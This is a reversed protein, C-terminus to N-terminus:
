FSVNRMLVANELVLRQFRDGSNAAIVRNRTGLNYTRATEGIASASEAGLSRVLVFLRATSINNPDIDVWIDEIGEALDERNSLPIAGSPTARNLIRRVLVPVGNNTRIYYARFDYEWFRGEPVDGAVSNTPPNLTNGPFVVSVLHNSLIYVPARENIDTPLDDRPPTPRASKIVIVGTGPMADTICGIANGNADAVATVLSNRWDFAAATGTCNTGDDLDNRVVMPQSGATGRFGNHKIENNLITIAFRGNDGMQSLRQTDAFSRSTLLFVASVAGSLFIGITMAVMLEVLSLGRQKKMILSNKM